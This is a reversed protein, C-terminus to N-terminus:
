VRDSPMIDRPPCYIGSSYPESVLMRGCGTTRALSVLLLGAARYLAKGRLHEGNTESGPVPGQSLRNRWCIFARWSRYIYKEPIICSLQPLRNRMEYYNKATKGLLLYMFDIRTNWTM